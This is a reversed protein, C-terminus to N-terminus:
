TDPSAFKHLYLYTYLVTHIIDLHDELSIGAKKLEQHNIIVMMFM